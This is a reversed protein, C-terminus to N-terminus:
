RRSWIAHVAGLLTSAAIVSLAWVPLAGPVAAEPAVNLNAAAQWGDLVSPIVAVLLGLLCVGLLAEERLLDPAFAPRRRTLRVTAAMLLVVAAAALWSPIGLLLMLRTGTAALAGGLASALWGYKPLFLFVLGGAAAVLGALEADPVREFGGLALSGAFGLGLALLCRPRSAAAASFTVAGLAALLWLAHFTVTV